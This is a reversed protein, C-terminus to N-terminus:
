WTFNMMLGVTVGRDCTASLLGRSQTVGPYRCVTQAFHFFKPAYNFCPVTKTIKHFRSSTYCFTKMQLPWQAHKRTYHLESARERTPIAQARSEHKIGIKKWIPRNTHLVIINVGGLKNDAFVNIQM